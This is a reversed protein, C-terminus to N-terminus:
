DNPQLGQRRSLPLLVQERLGAGATAAAVTLLNTRLLLCLSLGSILASKPEFGALRWLRSCAYQAGLAAGLTVAIQAATVDFGLRFLGYALLLSLVSIQYLRPDRRRRM